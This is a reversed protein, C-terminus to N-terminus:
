EFSVALDINLAPTLDIWRDEGRDCRPLTLSPALAQNNDQRTVSKLRETRDVEGM